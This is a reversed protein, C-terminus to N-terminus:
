QNVSCFYFNAIKASRGRNAQNCEAASKGCQIEEFAECKGTRKCQRYPRDVTRTLDVFVGAKWYTACIGKKSDVCYRRAVAQYCVTRKWSMCVGLFSDSKTHHKVAIDVCKPEGPQKEVCRMAKPCKKM